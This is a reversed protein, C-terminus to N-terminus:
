LVGSLFENVLRQEDQKLRTSGGIFVEEAGNALFEKLGEPIAQALECCYAKPLLPELFEERYAEDERERWDPTLFLLCAQVNVLVLRAVHAHAARETPLPPIGALGYTTALDALRGGGATLQRSTTYGQYRRGRRRLLKLAELTVGPQGYLWWSKDSGITTVEDLDMTDIGEEQETEEL